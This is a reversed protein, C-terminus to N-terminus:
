SQVPRKLWFCISTESIREESFIAVLEWGEEGLRNLEQETRMYDDRDGFQVRFEWKQM